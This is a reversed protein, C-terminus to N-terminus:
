ILLSSEQSWNLRLTRSSARFGLRLLKTYCVNYSTIRAAVVLTGRLPLLSRMLLAGAFVQAALGGKCDSAGTGYIRDGEIHMPDPEGTQHTDMHSNLLLTNNHEHGHIVGIVNGIADRYVHHYGLAEM